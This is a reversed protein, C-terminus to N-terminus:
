VRRSARGFTNEGAHIIEKLNKAFILKFNEFKWSNEWSKTLNTFSNEFFKIIVKFFKRWVAWNKRIHKDSHTKFEILFKELYEILM